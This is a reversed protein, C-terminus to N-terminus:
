GAGEPLSSALRARQRVPPTTRAGTDKWVARSNLYHQLRIASNLPSLPFFFVLGFFLGFLFFKCRCTPQATWVKIGLCKLSWVELGECRRTDWSSPASAGVRGPCLPATGCSGTVGSCDCRRCPSTEAVATWGAGRFSINVFGGGTRNGSEGVGLSTVTHSCIRVWWGKAFLQNLNRKFM